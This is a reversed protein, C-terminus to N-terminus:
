ISDSREGHPFVRGAPGQPCTRLYRRVTDKRVPTDAAETLRALEFGCRLQEKESVPTRGISLGT